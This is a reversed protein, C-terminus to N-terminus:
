RIFTANCVKCKTGIISKIFNEHRQQINNKINLLPAMQEKLIIIKDEIETPKGSILSTVIEGTMISEDDSMGTGNSGYVNGVITSLNLAVKLAAGNFYDSNKGLFIIKEENTAKFYFIDVISYILNYQDEERDQSLSDTIEELFTKLSSIKFDSVKQIMRNFIDGSKKDYKAVIKQITSLVNYIYNIGFLDMTKQKSSEFLEYLVEYQENKTKNILDILPYSLLPIQINSIDMYFKYFDNATYKNPNQLIDM